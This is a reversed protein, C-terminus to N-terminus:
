HSSVKQIMASLMKFCDLLFAGLGPIKDKEFYALESAIDLAADIEIISGRSVEFYRKREIESKRSCGEAINLHVSLEARRIQQVMAYWEDQPFFTTLKYCELVFKKSVKFVELQQHNLQLFM